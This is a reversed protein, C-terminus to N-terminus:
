CECGWCPAPPCADKRSRGRLWGPTTGAGTDGGPGGLRFAPCQQQGAMPSCPKFLRQPVVAAFALNPERRLGSCPLALLCLGLGPFTATGSCRLRPARPARRDGSSGPSGRAARVDLHSGFPRGSPSLVPCVRLWLLPEEQVTRGRGAPACLGLRGARHKADGRRAASRCRAARCPFPSFWFTAMCAFCPELPALLNGDAGGGAM